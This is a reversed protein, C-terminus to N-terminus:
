LVDPAFAMDDNRIHNFLWRNLIDYLEDVIDEGAYFRQKYDNARTIFLEHIRKHADYFEYKAKQMLSEEFSFHSITYNIMEGVVQGIAGDRMRSDSYPTKRITDLQNVMDVLRQHQNDIMVIGTRYEKPLKFFSVDSPTEQYDKSTGSEVPVILGLKEIENIMPLLEELGYRDEQAITRVSRKGDIVLLLSFLSTNNRVDAYDM